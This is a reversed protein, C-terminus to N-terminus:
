CIIMFQVLFSVWTIYFSYMSHLSRSSLGEFPPYESTRVM